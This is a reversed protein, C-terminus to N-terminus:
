ISVAETYFRGYLEYSIMQQSSNTLPKGAGYILYQKMASTSIETGLMRRIAERTAEIMELTVRTERRKFNPYLLDFMTYVQKMLQTAEGNVIYTGKKARKVKVNVKNM